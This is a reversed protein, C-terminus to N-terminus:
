PVLKQHVAAIIASLFYFAIPDSLLPIFHPHANFMIKLSCLNLYM